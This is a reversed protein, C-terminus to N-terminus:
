VEEGGSGAPQAARLEAKGPRPFGILDDVRRPDSATEFGFFTPLRKLFYGGDILIAARIM